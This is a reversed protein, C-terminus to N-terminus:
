PETTILWRTPHMADSARARRVALLTIDDFQVAEATHVKLHGEITDLLSAASSIPQELLSLLREQTFREGSPNRADPVGDTYAILMDGAELPIERVEYGADPFLGVAPGSVTLRKKIGGPGLIVPAEHGGNIYRLLGTAPDLIGFFLTTFMNTHSHTEAIYGNTLVIAHLLNPDGADSALQQGDPRGLNTSQDGIQAALGDPHTHGSFIRLLSRCLAMFLASGVGKDCVDGIAIAVLGGPLEFADYFDGSVDRAPTLSAALEWGSPQPLSYPLFDQQLQRGKELEGKLARSYAEIQEKAAELLRYSGGLNASMQNFEHGLQAIEDRTRIDLRYDLNGKGIEVTGIVLKQISQIIPRAILAFQGTIVLVIMGLIALMSVAMFKEVQEVGAIALTELEEAEDILRLMIEEIVDDIAHATDRLATAIASRVSPAEPSDTSILSNIRESLEVATNRGTHLIELEPAMPKFSELKQLSEVFRAIATRHQEFDKTNFGDRLLDHVEDNVKLWNGRVNHTARVLDAATKHRAGAEEKARALLIFSGGVLAALLALVVLSSVGFKTQIKM